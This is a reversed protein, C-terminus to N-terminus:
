RNMECLRATTRWTLSWTPTIYRPGCRRAAGVLRREERPRAMGVRAHQEVRDRVDVHAPARARRHLAFHRVREFGGGPQVNLGRQGCALSRQRTSRGASSATPPARTAQWATSSPRIQAAPALETACCASRRLRCCDSAASCTPLLQERERISGAGDRRGDGDGRRRAAATNYNSAMSMCYAGASLVALLDGPAVRSAATAASGTARSASRASWTTPRPTPTAASPVRRHRMWAQYMAPRLLDNMAADVICFNKESAAAEPVAGRDRLVGANGVLSRGPEIMLKRDGHGRADIRELLARVARRGGPPAEDNYTIGLGGGFDIHHLPIGAAEVAEVLDLLRDLADLYPGVETIQSGIHCDIGVM